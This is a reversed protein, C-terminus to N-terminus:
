VLYATRSFLGESGLYLGVVSQCDPTLYLDKVRGIIRGDSVSIVPNGIIDKGLFM